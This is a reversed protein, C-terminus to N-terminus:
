FVWGESRCLRKQSGRKGVGSGADGSGDSDGAILSVDGM